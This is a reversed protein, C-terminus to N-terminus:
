LKLRLCSGTLTSGVGWFKLENVSRGGWWWWWGGGGGGGYSTGGKQITTELANRNQIPIKQGLYSIFSPFKRACQTKHYFHVVCQTKRYFENGRKRITTELANM